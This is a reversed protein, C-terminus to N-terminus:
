VRGGCRGRRQQVRLLISIKRGAPLRLLLLLMLLLRVVVVVVVVVLVLVEEVLLV